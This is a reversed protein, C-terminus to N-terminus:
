AVFRKRIKGGALGILGIGLLLMSTPEPVTHVWGTNPMRDDADAGANDMVVYMAVDSDSAPDVGLATVYAKDFSAEVVSGLVAPGYYGTPTWDAHYLRIRDNVGDQNALELKIHFDALTDGTTDISWQYFAANANGSDQKALTPTGFVDTRIYVNGTASDDWWVFVEKLDYDDAIDEINNPDANYENPDTGHMKWADWEGAGVAGDVTIAYAQATGWLSVMLGLVFIYLVKKM